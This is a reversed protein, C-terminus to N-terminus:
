DKIREALERVMKVVSMNLSRSLGDLDPYIYRESIGYDSLMCLVDEKMKKPIIIQELNPIDLAIRGPGIEITTEPPNHITFIGGQNLIRPSFQRPRYSIIGKHSKLFDISLELNAFDRSLELIYVIGDKDPCSCCAFYCAILPNITWDLLRTALGHHQALALQEIFHDPINGYAIARQLWDNFIGLDRDNPLLFDKRGAKPLLEWQKDSQGRYVYGFGDHPRYVRFISHLTELSDITYFTTKSKSLPM